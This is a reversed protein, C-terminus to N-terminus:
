EAGDPLEDILPIIAASGRPHDAGIHFMARDLAVVIGDRSACSLGDAAGYDDTHAPNDAIEVMSVVGSDRYAATSGASYAVMSETRAVTLSRSKYTEGFLGKLREALDEMTVGEDLAAGVVRAVDDRTTASIGTIRTGVEGLVAQVYPNAINYASAPIGQAAALWGQRIALQQIAELVEALLDEEDDWPIEAVSRRARLELESPHEDAFPAVSWGNRYPADVYGAIRKGQARWFRRLAPAGKAALADYADRATTAVKARTEPSLRQMRRNGAPLAALPATGNSEYTPQGWHKIAVIRSRAADEGEDGFDLAGFPSAPAYFGQGADGGLEAYGFDTRIEDLRIAQTKWLEIKQARENTLDDQLAPIESADFDLSHDTPIDFEPRLSRTLSGDLRRWLPVITDEYFARRAQGYNSYTSADIGLQTHVLIPHVGFASCIASATLKNLDVFAMENYDLGVRKIDKVWPMVGIRGAGRGGGYRQQMEESVASAEDKTMGEAVADQIIALFSPTGDREFFLKVFDAMQNAIAVQRMAALLPPTGMPGMSVSSNFRFVGVDEAAFRPVPRVGPIHYDWDYTQNTRPVPRLWDTRLAHLSVVQKLPGRFKEYVCVGTVAAIKVIQELFEPQSEYQNPDEILAALRGPSSSVSPPVPKPDGVALNQYLRLPASAIANALVNVCAFVVVEKDYGELVLTAPDTPLWQPKGRQWEPVTLAVSRTSIGPFVRPERAFASAVRTLLSM